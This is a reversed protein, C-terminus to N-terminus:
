KKKRLLVMAGAALLSLSAPEPVFYEMAAEHITERPPTAPILAVVIRGVISLEVNTRGRKRRQM